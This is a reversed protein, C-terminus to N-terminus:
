NLYFNLDLSPFSGASYKVRSLLKDTLKDYIELYKEGYWEVEKTYINIKLACNQTEYVPSVCSNRDRCLREQEGQISDLNKLDILGLNINCSSWQECYINPNCNDSSSSSRLCSLKGPKKYETNCNNIDICSPTTEGQICNSWQCNWDEECTSNCYKELDPPNSILCNKADYCNRKQIGNICIEWDECKWDPKCSTLNFKNKVLSAQLTDSSQSAKKDVKGQGTLNASASIENCSKILITKALNCTDLETTIEVLIRAAEPNKSSTINVRKIENYGPMDRIIVQKQESGIFSFVIRNINYSDQERSLMLIVSQSNESYCASYKLSTITNTDICEQSPTNFGSILYYLLILILSLFILALALINVIFIIKKNM